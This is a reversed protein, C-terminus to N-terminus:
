SSATTPAECDQEDVDTWSAPQVDSQIESASMSELPSAGNDAAPVTLALAAVLLPIGILTAGLAAWAGRDGDGHKNIRTTRM